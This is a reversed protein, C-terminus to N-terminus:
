RARVHDAMRWAHSREQVAPPLTVSPRGLFSAIRTAHSRWGRQQNDLGSDHTERGSLRSPPPTSSRNDAAHGVCIGYMPQANGAM